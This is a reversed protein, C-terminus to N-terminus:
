GRNHGSNRRAMLRAAEQTMMKKVNATLETEESFSQEYRVFVLEHEHLRGNEPMTWFWGVDVGRRPDVWTDFYEGCSAVRVNENWVRMPSGFPSLKPKHPPRLSLFGNGVGYWGWNPNFESVAVCMDHLSSYVVGTSDFLHLHGSGSMFPFGWAINPGQRIEHAYEIQPFAFEVDKCNRFGSIMFFNGRSEYRYSMRDDIDYLMLHKDSLKLFKASPDFDALTLSTVVDYPTDPTAPVIFVTGKPIKPTLGYEQREWKYGDPYRLCVRPHSPNGWIVREFFFRELDKQQEETPFQDYEVPDCSVGLIKKM